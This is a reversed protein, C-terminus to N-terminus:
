NQGIKLWILILKSGLKMKELSFENQGNAENTFKMLEEKKQLKM